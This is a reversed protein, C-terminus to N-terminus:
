NRYMWNFIISITKPNYEHYVIFKNNKEVGYLYYYM